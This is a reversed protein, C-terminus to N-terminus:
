SRNTRLKNTTASSNNQLFLYVFTYYDITLTSFPKISVQPQFRELIISNELNRKLKDLERQKEDLIRILELHEYENKTLILLSFLSYFCITSISYYAKFNFACVFLWLITFTWSILLTSWSLKNRTFTLSNMLPALMVTIMIDTPLVDLNSPLTCTELPSNVSCTKTSCECFLWFGMILCNFIVHLSSTQLNTTFSLLGVFSNIVFLILLTVFHKIENRILGMTIGLLCLFTFLVYFAFSSTFPGTQKNDHM